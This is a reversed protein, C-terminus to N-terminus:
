RIGVFYAVASDGYQMMRAVVPQLALHTATTGNMVSAGYSEISYSMTNSIRQGDEEVWTLFPTRMDTAKLSDFTVKYYKGSSDLAAATILIEEFVVDGNVNTYAVKLTRGENLRGETDKTDVYVNIKVSDELLLSAGPIKTLYEAGDPFFAYNNEADKDTCSTMEPTKVSAFGQYAEFGANALNATNYGFYTQAEAGYNVMDVLLTKLEDGVERSLMNMAYTVVSYDRSEGAVLTIVDDKTAFIQMTVNSNMEKASLDNYDFRLCDM